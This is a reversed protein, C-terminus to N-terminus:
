AFRKARNLDILFTFQVYKKLLGFYMKKIGESTKWICPLAMLAIRAVM